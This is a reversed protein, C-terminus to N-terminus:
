KLGQKNQSHTKGVCGSRSFDKHFDFSLFVLHNCFHHINKIPPTMDKKWIHLIDTSKLFPRYTRPEMLGTMERIKGSYVYKKMQM